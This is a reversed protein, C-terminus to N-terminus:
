MIFLNSGDSYLRLGVKNAVIVLNAAGDITEAGETEVTINNTGALLGADKLDFWLTDDAIAASAVTLVCAGTATRTIHLLRGAHAALTVALTATSVTIPAQAACAPTVNHPNTTVDARHDNALGVDSHDTGPSGRHTTNLAVAAATGAGISAPSVAQGLLRVMVRSDGAAADVIVVGVLANTSDDDVYGGVTNDYADDGLSMVLGPAKPLEVEISLDVSVENGAAATSVPVGYMSGIRLPTGSTAGAPAVITANISDSTPATSM